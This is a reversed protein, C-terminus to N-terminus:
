SGVVAESQLPSVGVPTNQAAALWWRGGREVLVYMAMESFGDTDTAERRIQTVLVGPAPTRVAVVEFRSRPAVNAAMLRHHLTNLEAYGAVSAGFPSGWLVDAAFDSDYGDADGAAGARQLGAAFEAAVEHARAAAEPDSLTPRADM